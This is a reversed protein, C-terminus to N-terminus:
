DPRELLAESGPLEAPDLLAGFTPGLTFPRMVQGAWHRAVWLVGTDSPILAHTQYGTIDGSRVFVPGIRLDAQGEVQLVEQGFRERSSAVMIRGNRLRTVARPSDEYPAEALPLVKLERVAGLEDISAVATYHEGDVLEDGFALEGTGHLAVLLEDEMASTVLGTFPLSAPLVGTFKMSDDTLLTGGADFVRRGMEGDRVRWELVNGRPLRYLQSKRPRTGPSPQAYVTIRGDTGYRLVVEDNASLDVGLAPASIANFANGALWLEGTGSLLLSDVRLGEPIGLKTVDLLSGDAGALRLLAKDNTTVEVEPGGPPAFTKRVSASIVALVDGDDAVGYAELTEYEDLRRLWLFDLGQWVSLSRQPSLNSAGTVESGDPLTGGSSALQALYVGDRGTVVQEFVGSPNIRTMDVVPTKRFRVVVETDEWVLESCFGADLNSVTCRGETDAIWGGPYEVRYGFLTGVEVNVSCEDECVMEPAHASVLRAGSPANELRVTLKRAAARYMDNRPKVFTRSWGDGLLISGQPGFMTQRQTAFNTGKFYGGGFFGNGFISSDKAFARFEPLAKPNWTLMALYPTEDGTTYFGRLSGVDDVTFYAERTGKASESSSPLLYRELKGEAVRVLARVSEHIPRRPHAEFVDKAPVVGVVSGDGAVHLSGDGQRLALDITVGDSTTGNLSLEKWQGSESEMAVVERVEHAANRRYAHYYARGDPLLDMHLVEDGEVIDPVPWPETHKLDFLRTRRFPLWYGIDDRQSQELVVLTTEDVKRWTGIRGEVKEDLAELEAVLADNVVAGKLEGDDSHYLLAAGDKGWPLMANGVRAPLYVRSAVPCMGRRWVLGSLLTDDREHYLYFDGSETLVSLAWPTKTMELLPVGAGGWGTPHRWQCDAQWTYTIEGDSRRYNWHDKDLGLKQNREFRTMQASFPEHFGFQFLVGHEVSSAGEGLRSAQIKGESVKIAYVEDIKPNRSYFVLALPDHEGFYSFLEDATPTGFTVSGSAPSALGGYLERARKATTFQLWHDVQGQDDVGLWFGGQLDNFTVESVSPNGSDDGCAALLM